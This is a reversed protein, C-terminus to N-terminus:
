RKLVEMAKDYNPEDALEPVIELYEIVGKKDVIIVARTLLLLEKILLGYDLGFDSNMYDSYTYIRDIGESACFRSLAFPLDKSITIIVVDESLEVARKNFARTQAACTGTDISPFVSIVIRKGAFNSLSAAELEPSVVTFDPATDGVKVGDGLLTLAIDGKKVLGIREEKM